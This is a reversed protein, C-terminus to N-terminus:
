RILSRSQAGVSNTHRASDLFDDIESEYLVTGRKLIVYIVYIVYWAM